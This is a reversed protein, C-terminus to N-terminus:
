HLHSSQSTSPCGIFLYFLILFSCPPFLTAYDKAVRGKSYYAWLNFNSVSVSLGDIFKRLKEMNDKLHNNLVIMYQEQLIVVM